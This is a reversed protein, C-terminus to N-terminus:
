AKALPAHALELFGAAVGMDGVSTSAQLLLALMKGEDIKLLPALAEFIEIYAAIAGRRETRSDHGITPLVIVIAAAMVAKALEVPVDADLSLKNIYPITMPHM